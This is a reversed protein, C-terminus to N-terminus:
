SSISLRPLRKPYVFYVLSSVFIDLQKELYKQTYKMCKMESEVSPLVFIVFELVHFFITTTLFHSSHHLTRCIPPM